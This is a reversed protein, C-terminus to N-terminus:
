WNDAFNGLFGHTNGKNHDAWLDGMKEKNEAAGAQEGTGRVVNLV